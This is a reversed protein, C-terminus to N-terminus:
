MDKPIRSATRAPQKGPCSIRGPARGARTEDRLLSQRRAANRTDYIPVIGPHELRALIKAEEIADSGANAPRFAPDIVKLAIHRDLRTDRAAYVVGMGGRGLEESLEYRTGSLDPLQAVRRLHDLARDSLYQM